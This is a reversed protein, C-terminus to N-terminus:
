PALIKVILLNVNQYYNQFWGEYSMERIVCGSYAYWQYPSANWKPLQAVITGTVGQVLFFSYLSNWEDTDLADWKLYYERVAPYIAVGNGDVGIPNREKWGHETPQSAMVTGNLALQNLVTGSAYSM